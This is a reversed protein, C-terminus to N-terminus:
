RPTSIPSSSTPLQFAALVVTHVMFAFHSTLATMAKESMAVGPLQNLDDVLQEASSVIEDPVGRLRLADTCRDHASAMELISYSKEGEGVAPEQAVAADEAPPPFVRPLVSACFRNRSERAWLLLNWAGPTPANKRQASPDDLKSYCWLIDSVDAAQPGVPKPKAKPM